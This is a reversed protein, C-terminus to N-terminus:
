SKDLQVEGPAMMMWGDQTGVIFSWDPLKMKLQLLIKASIQEDSNDSVLFYCQKERVIEQHKLCLARQIWNPSSFITVFDFSKDNM